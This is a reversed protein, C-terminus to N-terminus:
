EADEEMKFGAAKVNEYFKTQIADFLDEWVENHEDEPTQSPHDSEKKVHAVEHAIIEAVSVMPIEENIGIVFTGDERKETFGAAGAEDVPLIYIEVDGLEPFMEECTKIVMGIADNKITLKM